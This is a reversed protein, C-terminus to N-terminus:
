KKGDLFKIFKKEGLFQKKKREIIQDNEDLFKIFKQENSFKIQSHRWCILTPLPFNVIWGIIQDNEDLFKIFKRHNLNFLIPLIEISKRFYM